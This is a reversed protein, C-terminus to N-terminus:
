ARDKTVLELVRVALEGELNVLEGRALVQGGARLLVPEALRRGTGIVDGPKLAGWERAPMSVAGLEVRVVLPADLVADALTEDPADNSVMKTAEPAALAVATAERLVIEGSAQLEVAVGRESTGAVLVARGRLSADVWFEGPCFAAGVTLEALARPTTLCSAVVLPLKLESDGLTAFLDHTSLEPALALVSPLWAAAAYPKDKVIVTVHLVTAGVLAGANVRAPRLAELTGTARAGEVLLAGLAGFLTSDLEANTAVLPVPRRLLLALLASALAPEVGVVWTGPAAARELGIRVFDAAPARNDVARLVIEVPTELVRALGAALRVPDFAQALLRRSARLAAIPARAVPELTQWPFASIAGTRAM